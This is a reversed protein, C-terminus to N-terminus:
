LREKVKSTITETEKKLDALFDSLKRELDDTTSAGAGLLKKRTESGKDPAFLLGLAGGIVAGIILAGIIVTPNTSKEM